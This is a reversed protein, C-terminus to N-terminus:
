MVCVYMGPIHLSCDQNIDFIAKAADSVVGDGGTVVGLVDVFLISDSDDLSFFHLVVVNQVRVQRCCSSWFLTVWNM